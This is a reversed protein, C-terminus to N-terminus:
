IEEFPSGILDETADLLTQNHFNSKTLYYDAGADLGRTKDDASDKYSVIIIPINKYEASDKVQCVLEIGDMNPMDIDTIILDYHLEHIKDWAELGDLAVEVLFGHDLLIKREVERVTVSDDVVLIRKNHIKKKLTIEPEIKKLREGSILRDMTQLMDHIDLILIPTGDDGIAAASISQLKGLSQNLPQIVLDKIGNFSDVLLGYTHLPGELVIISLPDQILHRERLELAQQASIIGVRQNNSIFYQRNGIEKIESRPLRLVHSINVLPFLYPENNIQAVMGRVISLTLPLHLEITTGKGFESSLHISGRIERIANHVVDLGVGRGSTKTAQEKTTFSPLFLFEQLEYNNLEAAITESVLKKSIIKKRVKEFDIGRGDDSIIIHLMGSVHKAEIGIRAQISKGQATREVPTEIGHDIANTVIHNLSSEIKELIDRDVLTGSGSVELLIEKHQERGLDRIQRPLGILGESIPQMRNNIIERHLKHFITTAKLSHDEVDSIQNMLHQRCYGMRKAIDHLSNEMYPTTGTDLLHKKARDISLLVDNQLRRLRNLKGSLQPLWRSEIMAEGAMGMMRGVSKASVRLTRDSLPANDKATAPNSRSVADVSDNQTYSQQLLHDEEEASPAELDGNPHHVLENPFLASAKHKFVNLQNILVTFSENHENLWQPVLNKDIHILEKTFDIAALMSDIHESSLRLKKEQAAIFLDEMVHTLQVIQHLEIVRAAGKLSHVTRMSSELLTYQDPDKEIEILNDSLIALHNEADERFIKFLEINSFDDVKLSKETPSHSRVAEALSSTTQTFSKFFRNLRLFVNRREEIAESIRDPSVQTLNNLQEICEEFCHQLDHNNVLADRNHQLLLEMSQALAVIEQLDVIRAAGKISHTARLIADYNTQEPAAHLSNFGDTLIACQNKTELQFLEVLSMDNLSPSTM